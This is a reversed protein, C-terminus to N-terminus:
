QEGGFYAVMEMSGGFGKWAELFDAWKVEQNPKSGNKGDPNHIIVSDDKYGIALVSHADYGTKGSLPAGNVECRVLWGKDLFSIIDEKTGQRQTFPLGSKLFQKAREQELPIDSKTLQYKLADEDQFLEKLYGVPNNAFKDISWDAIWVLDFGMENLELASKFSWTGLGDKYGCLEDSAKLDFNLEPRFYQVVMAICAPVCHGSPNDVFPVKHLKM